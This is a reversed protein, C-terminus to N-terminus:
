HPSHQERGEQLLSLFTAQSSSEKLDHGVLPPTRVLLFAMSVISIM